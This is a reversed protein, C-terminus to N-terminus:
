LEASVVNLWQVSCLNEESSWGFRTVRGGLLWDSHGLLRLVRPTQSLDWRPVPCLSGGERTTSLMM